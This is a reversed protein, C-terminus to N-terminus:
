WEFAKSNVRAKHRCCISRISIKASRVSAIDMSEYFLSSLPMLVVLCDQRYAHAWPEEERVTPSLFFTSQNKRM